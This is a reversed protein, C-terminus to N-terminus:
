IWHDKIRNYILIIIDYNIIKNLAMKIELCNITYPLKDYM